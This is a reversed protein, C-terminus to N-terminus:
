NPARVSLAYSATYRVVEAPLDAYQVPGVATDWNAAYRPPSTMVVQTLYGLGPVVKNISRFLTARVAESLVSADADADLGETLAFVDLRAHDIFRPDGGWWEGILDGRHIIIAPFTQDDSIQSQVPVSKIQSRLLTLVLDEVPHMHALDYIEEPLAM